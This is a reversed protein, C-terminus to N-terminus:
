GQTPEKLTWLYELERRMGEFCRSSPPRHTGCRPCDHIGIVTRTTIKRTIVDIQWIYGGLNSASDVAEILPCIRAAALAAFSELYGHPGEEPHSAYHRVLVSKQNSWPSRQRSRKSWCAWCSGHGPVVVPGIRLTPSDLVVPIFPVRCQHSSQDALECLDPVPRWAVIVRIRAVPWMEPASLDKSVTTETVDARTARIYRSVAQGFPGVSLVHVAKPLAQQDVM